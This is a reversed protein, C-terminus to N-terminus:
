RLFVHQIQGHQKLAGSHANHVCREGVGKGAADCKLIIELGHADDSKDPRAEASRETRGYHGPNEVVDLLCVCGIQEAM